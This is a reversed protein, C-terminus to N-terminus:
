LKGEDKFSFYTEQGLIIHDLLRIGLIKGAEAIQRTISFDESSPAPDGSPHNHMLIIASASRSIAPKFVERPHAMSGSVTGKSIFCAEILRNKADLLLAIIHEQPVHRFRARYALWVDQSGSIANGANLPNEIVRRGLELAAKIQRARAEGIGEFDMLERVSCLHLGRLGGFRRLLAEALETGKRGGAGSQLLLALLEPDLLHEGGQADFRRKIGEMDSQPASLERELGSIEEGHFRFWLCGPSFPCGHCDPNRACRGGGTAADEAATHWKLLRGMKAYDLGTLQLAKEICAHAKALSDRPRAPDGELMGLRWFFRRISSEPPIVPEGLHALFVWARLGGLGPLRSRWAAAHAAPTSIAARQEIGKEDSHIRKLLQLVERGGELLRPYEKLLLVLKPDAPVSPELGQILKMLGRLTRNRAGWSEDWGLSTKLWAELASEPTGGPAEKARGLAPLADPHSELYASRLGEFGDIIQLDTPM